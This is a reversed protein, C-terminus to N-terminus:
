NEEKNQSEILKNVNIAPLILPTINANVTYTSIIARVYPYLIAIANSKLLKPECGDTQFYGTLKVRMEFPQNLEKANEFINVNLVIKLNNENIEINPRIKLDVPTGNEPKSYEDNKAFYIENVEYKNFKLISEYKSM